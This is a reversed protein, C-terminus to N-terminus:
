EAPSKLITPRHRVKLTLVHKGLGIAPQELLFYTASALALTALAAVGPAWHPAGVSTVMGSIRYGIITHLLYWSYSVIGIFGLTRSEFGRRLAFWVLAASVFAPVGILPSIPSFVSACVAMIAILVGLGADSLAGRQCAGFQMGAICYILHYPAQGPLGGVRMWLVGYSALFLYPVAWVKRDDVRKLFPAVAYFLVEIYLTWYVGAMRETKAIPAMFTANLLVDKLGWRPDLAAVLIISIWYMPLIRSARRVGYSLVNADISLNRDILFGSLFFFLIVGGEGCLSPVTSGALASFFQPMYHALVVLLIAVGRLADLSRLRGKGLEDM